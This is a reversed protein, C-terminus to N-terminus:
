RNLFVYILNRLLLLSFCNIGPTCVIGELKEDDFDTLHKSGTTNDQTSLDVEEEEEGEEKLKAKKGKLIDEINQATKRKSSRLVVRTPTGPDDENFEYISKQNNDSKSPSSLSSFLSSSLSTDLEKDEDKKEQRREDERREKEKEEEPLEMKALDYILHKIERRKRTVDEIDFWQETFKLFSIL